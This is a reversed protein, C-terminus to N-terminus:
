GSATTARDAPSASYAPPAGIPCPRRWAAIARKSPVVKWTVAVRRGVTDAVGGPPFPVIMTIPHDSYTQAVASPLAGFGLCAAAALGIFIRRPFRNARITM